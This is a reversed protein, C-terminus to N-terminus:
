NILDIIFNIISIIVGIASIIVGIVTVTNIDFYKHRIIVTGSPIRNLILFIFCLLPMIYYNYSKIFLLTDYKEPSLLVLVTTFLSFVVSVFCLIFSLYRIIRKRIFHYWVRYNKLYSFAAENVGACWSEKDSSSRIIADPGILFSSFDRSNFRIHKGNGYMNYISMTFKTIKNHNINYNRIDEVSDFRLREDSFEVEISTHVDDDDGFELRLQSHLGELEDVSVSFTDLTKTREVMRKM